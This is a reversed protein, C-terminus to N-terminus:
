DKRRVRMVLYIVIALNVLLVVIKTATLDRHVEYVELPILGATSIIIFYEAWRKRLLLGTGETLLLASYFFTGISAEKLQKPSVSLARSLLRHIIRNDPDVRLVDIWHSVVEGVDSHLLRLAGIGVMLLLAGKFLKFIAIALLTASSQRATSGM